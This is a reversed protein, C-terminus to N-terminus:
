KKGTVSKPFPKQKEKENMAMRKALFKRLFFVIYGTQLYEIEMTWALQRYPVLGSLVYVILFIMPIYIGYKGFYNAQWGVVGIFIQNFLLLRLLEGSARIEEPFLGMLLPYAFFLAVCAIAMWLLRKKNEKTLIKELESRNDQTNEGNHNAGM